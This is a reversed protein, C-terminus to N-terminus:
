VAAWRIFSAGRQSISEGRLLGVYSLLYLLENTILLDTTRAREDARGFGAYTLRMRRNCRLGRYEAPPTKIGSQCWRPLSGM